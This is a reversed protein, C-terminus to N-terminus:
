QCTMEEFKHLNLSVEANNMGFEFRTYGATKERMKRHRCFCDAQM